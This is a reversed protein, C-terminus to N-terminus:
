NHVVLIKDGALFVGDFGLGSWSLLNGVITFDVGYEGPAGNIVFVYTLNPTTPADALTISKDLINQASLTIPASPIYQTQGINDVQNKLSDLAATVTAGPVSSANTVGSSSGGGGGGGAPPIRIYTGAM